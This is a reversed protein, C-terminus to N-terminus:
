EFDVFLVILAGFGYAGTSLYLPLATDGTLAILPGALLCVLFYTAPMMVTVSAMASGMKGTGRTSRTSQQSNHTPEGSQHSNRNATTPQHSHQQENSLQYIDLSEEHSQYNQPNVKKSQNSNPDDGTEKKMRAPFQATPKGKQEPAEGCQLM